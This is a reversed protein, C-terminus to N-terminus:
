TPHPVPFWNPKEEERRLRDLGRRRQRPSRATRWLMMRESPRGRGPWLPWHFAADSPHMRNAAESLFCLVVSVIAMGLAVATLVLNIIKQGNETKKVDRRYQPRSQTGLSATPGSSYHRQTPRARHGSRRAPRHLEKLMFGPEKM